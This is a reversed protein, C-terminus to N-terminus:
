CDVSIVFPNESAVPREERERAREKGGRTPREEAGAERWEKGNWYSCPKFCRRVHVLPCACEYM